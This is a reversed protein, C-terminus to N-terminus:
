SCPGEPCDTDWPAVVRSWSGDNRTPSNETTFSEFAEVAPISVSACDNATVTGKATFGLVNDPLDPVRQVM